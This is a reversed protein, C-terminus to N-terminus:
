NGLDYLNFLNKIQLVLSTSISVSQLAVSSLGLKIYGLRSGKCGRVRHSM